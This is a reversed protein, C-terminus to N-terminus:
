AGNRAAIRRVADKILPRLEHFSDHDIMAAASALEPAAGPRSGADAVARGVHASVGAETRTITEKPLLREVVRNFRAAAECIPSLLPAECM